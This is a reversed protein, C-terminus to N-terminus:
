TTRQMPRGIYFGHLAFTHCFLPKTYLSLKISRGIYIGHLAITPCFLPKVPATKDMSCFSGLILGNHPLVNAHCHCNWQHILTFWMYHWIRYLNCYLCMHTPIIKDCIRVGTEQGNRPRVLSKNWTVKAHCLYNCSATEAYKGQRSVASWKPHAKRDGTIHTNRSACVYAGWPAWPIKNAPYHRVYMPGMSLWIPMLLALYTPGVHCSTALGWPGWSQCSMHQWSLAGWQGNMPSM